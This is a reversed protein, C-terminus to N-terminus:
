KIIARAVYKNPEKGSMTGTKYGFRMNSNLLKSGLDNLKFKNSVHDILDNVDVQYQKSLNIIEGAFKKARTETFGKKVLQATIIDINM